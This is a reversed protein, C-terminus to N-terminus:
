QSGAGKGLGGGPPGAPGRLPRTAAVSAPELASLPLPDGPNPRGAPERPAASVFAHLDQFDWREPAIPRNFRDTVRCHYEGVLVRAAFRDCMAEKRRPSRGAARVLYHYLEHLYVFLALQYGDAVTLRYVERWWGDRASRARALHTGFTYPYRNGRGLNVFIRGDRYFCTGSFESSRSFRVRVRLRAHSYPATHREFMSRLRSSDLDTSNGFDM